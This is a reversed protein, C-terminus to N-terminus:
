SSVSLSNLKEMIQNFQDDVIVCKQPGRPASPPNKRVDITITREEPNEVLLGLQPGESVLDANLWGLPSAIGKLIVGKNYLDSFLLKSTQVSLPRTIKKEGSRDLGIVTWGGYKKKEWLHFALGALVLAILTSVVGGVLEVSIGEAVKAAEAKLLEFMIKERATIM